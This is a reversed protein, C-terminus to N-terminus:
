INSIHQKYIKLVSEMQAKESYHNEIHKKFHNGLTLRLEKNKAYLLLVNALAKSDNPRVLFGNKENLVINECEGVATAVVALNALGYELLALPLGESKSSLVGIDCQSLIHFVDPRSGYLFVSNELNCKTIKQKVRDSYDDNFDKGVCHLTWDPQNKVMEAFAEILTFHDKQPRLNALCVMRKGDKGKLQTQKLKFDPVAFNPLYSVNKLKLKQKAWGELSRNVSFTHAFYKSCWKLVKDDRSQLYESNGYHDHWVVVIKPNLFKVITALFFSTSHAHVIQIHHKKIFRQLKQTAAFDITKRKKLFVYGVEPLINEKLLGEQRTACLFSKEVKTVLANALNVAVREAGGANLSDILQLVRM